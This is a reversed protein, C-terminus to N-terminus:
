SQTLQAAGVKHIPFGFQPPIGSSSRFRSCPRPAPYEAKLAGICGGACTAEFVSPAIAVAVYWKFWCKCRAYGGCHRESCYTKGNLWLNWMLATVPLLFQVCVLWLTQPKKNESLTPTLFGVCDWVFNLFAGSASVVGFCCSTGASTVDCTIAEKAEDHM